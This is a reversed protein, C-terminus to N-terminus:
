LNAARLEAEVIVQTYLVHVLDLRQKSVLNLGWINM